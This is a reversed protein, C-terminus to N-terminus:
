FSVRKACYEDMIPVANTLFVNAFFVVNVMGYIWGGGALAYSVRWIMNSGYNIHRALRFLGSTYIKGENKPNEKFNKRQAESTVEGSIGVIYGTVGLIFIPSFGLETETSLVAPTFASAAATLSLISNVSNFITQSACILLASSPPMIENATFLLTYVQKVTSGVAMALLALPKISLGLAVAPASDVPSSVHLLNILPNALGKALIGYQLFPDLCRLVTFVTTGIPSPGKVGYPILVPPHSM